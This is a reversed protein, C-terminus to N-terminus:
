KLRVKMGERAVFTNPFALKAQKEVQKLFADDHSPDHHFIALKKVDGARALRVAQQWTSHGWGVKQPYEDDTYTSDYIVLDAGQILGLVTEDLSGPHHEVDTVYCASRGRYELRYGTAHGPHNLRATRVRIGPGLDLVDGAQFDELVLNAQLAAMPVPFYPNSMQKDIVRALGGEENDLHGAMVRLSFNPRYIPVFFPFGDIHDWHTHSLLLTARPIEKRILRLGLQRLGTGADFIIVQDGVRAEVCSTNGGFRLHDWQPCAISGRVGWFRIGFSM